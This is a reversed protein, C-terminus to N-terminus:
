SAGVMRKIAEAAPKSMERRRAENFARNLPLAQEHLHNIKARRRHETRREQAAKEAAAEAKKDAAAKKKDEVATVNAIEAKIRREAAIRDKEARRTRREEDTLKTNVKPVKIHKKPAKGNRRDPNVTGSATKKKPRDAM